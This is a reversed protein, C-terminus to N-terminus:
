RQGLHFQLTEVTNPFQFLFPNRRDDAEVGSSPPLLPLGSRVSWGRIRKDEGAAFIFEQDPDLAIGLKQTHSNVHGYYQMIPTSQQPFRLDFTLLDGNMHSVLLQSDAITDLHLVSSRAKGEFRDDYLKVGLKGTRKDFRLISGNRCGTYIMNDKQYVAFVDSHTDLTQIPPNSIDIDSLFVAKKNAGLVLANDQLHANWIDHVGTLSLLFTRGTVNLDQVSVKPSPGFCTAICRAGSICISSIESEPRLNIDAAWLNHGSSLPTSNYLWGRNDGIFRRVEGNLVTSCFSKIHGFTPVKTETVSSTTAYHSCLIEHTAQYRKHTFCTARSTETINWFSNKRKRKLSKAPHDSKPIIPQTVSPMKPKSSLPFYRNRQADWYFGPLDVPM